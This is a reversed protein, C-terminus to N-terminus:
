MSGFSLFCYLQIYNIYVHSNSLDDYIRVVSEFYLVKHSWIKNDVQSDTNDSIVTHLFHALEIM